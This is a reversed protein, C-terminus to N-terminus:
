MAHKKGKTIAIDNQGFNLIICNKIDPLLKLMSVIFGMIIFTFFFILIMSVIISKENNYIFISQFSDYSIYLDTQTIEMNGVGGKKSEEITLNNREIDIDDLNLLPDYTKFIKIISYCYYYINIDDEMYETIGNGSGSGNDGYKIEEETNNLLYFSNFYHIDSFLLSYLNMYVNFTRKFLCSNSIIKMAYQIKNEIDRLKKQTIIDGQQQKQYNLWTKNCNKINLYATITESALLYWPLVSEIIDNHDGYKNIDTDIHIHINSNDGLLLILCDKLNKNTFITKYLINKWTEGCWTINDIEIDRPYKLLIKSDYFIRLNMGTTTTTTRNNHVSPSNKIDDVDELPLLCNYYEYKLINYVPDKLNCDYNGFLENGIICEKIPYNNYEDVAVLVIDKYTDNIPNSVSTSGGMKISVILQLTINNYKYEKKTCANKGLDNDYLVFEYISYFTKNIDRISSINKTTGGGVGDVGRYINKFYSKNNIFFMFQNNLDKSPYIDKHEITKNLLCSYINTNTNSDEGTEIIIDMKGIYFTFKIFRGM